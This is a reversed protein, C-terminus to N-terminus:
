HNRLFLELMGNALDAPVDLADQTDSWVVPREDSREGVTRHSPV